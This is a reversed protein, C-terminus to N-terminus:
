WRGRRAAKGLRQNGVTVRQYKAPPRELHFQYWQENYARMKIKKGNQVALLAEKVRPDDGTRKTAQNLIKLAEDRQGIQCLLYAYLNWALGSKKARKTVVEMTKKMQDHDKRKYQIVGLMAGGMWHGFGLSSELYPAAKKFDKHLFHLMGIQTDIQSKVGIQHKALPYASEMVTVARAIDPPAKQMAAASAQAISGVQAFTRRALLFYVVGAVIVAPVAAEGASLLKPVFLAAFALGGAALAIALNRM